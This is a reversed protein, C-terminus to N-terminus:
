LCPGGISDITLRHGARRHRPERYSTAPRGERPPQGTGTAPCIFPAPEGGQRRRGKMRGAGATRTPELGDRQAEASKERLTRGEILGAKAVLQDLSVKEGLSAREPGCLWPARTKKIGALSLESLISTSEAAVFEVALLAAACRRSRRDVLRHV